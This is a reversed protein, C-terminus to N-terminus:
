EEEGQERVLEEGIALVIAAMEKESEPQHEMQTSLWNALATGRLLLPKFSADELENETAVDNIIAAVLCARQQKTFNM